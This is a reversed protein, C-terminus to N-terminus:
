VSFNAIMLSVVKDVISIAEIFFHELESRQDMILQMLRRLKKSEKHRLRLVDSLNQYTLELETNKSENDYKLFELERTYKAVEEPFKKNLDKIENKLEQIKKSQKYTLTQYEIMGEENRLFENRAKKNKQLLELRENKQAELRLDHSDKETQLKQFKEDVNDKYEKIKSYDKELQENTERLTRMELESEYKMKTKKVTNDNRLQELEKTLNEREELLQTEKVKLDTQKELIKDLKGKQFEREKINREYEHRIEEIEDQKKDKLDSFDQELQEIIM